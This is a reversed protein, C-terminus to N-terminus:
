RSNATEVRRPSVTPRPVRGEFWERVDVDLGVGHMYNYIAARLGRGLREHDCRVPDRFPVENRAFAPKGIIPFIRPMKELRQFSSYNRRETPPLIGRLPMGGKAPSEPSPAGSSCTRLIVNQFIPSHVTLAFRHWFASDLLRAEFLQRVVELADVTEQATQSPYGYMLYAHTLLGASKFAALCRVASEITVGKCMLKLLRDVATELGGTVAVCGARAMLGALERDFAPEFRINTWWQIKLGEDLLRRSLQRLLAPPAAEDTFHFGTWGTQAIVERIWRVVTGADAPDFRRIHDLSTDCFACRHWYCGHALMLKNWRRSSWLRHMPNATEAMRIYRDLPLGDYCPAPRDRHRVPAASVYHLEPASTRSHPPKVGSETRPGDLRAACLATLGACELDLIEEMAREGEDLVVHDFLDFLRPDNAERLETSVYGGGLVTVLGPRARKMARAARAAGYFAGPFPVTFGVVRPRHRRVARAALEDIWRDILTRKGLAESIPDFSPLHAGLREAYRSFGFHPDLGDRVADVIDDLFLSARQMAADAPAAERAAPELARLRRGPPLGAPLAPSREQLFRVAPEVARLIQARHALVYAVSAPRRRKPGARRLAAMVAELGRRSFVRLILELSLDVQRADHGRRRLWATLMPAAPYPANCQVLPPTVLLVKVLVPYRVGRPCASDKQWAPRPYGRIARIARIALLPLQVLWSRLDKERERVRDAVDASDATWRDEAALLDNVRDRRTALM